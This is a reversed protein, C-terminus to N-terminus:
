TGSRADPRGGPTAPPKSSDPVVLCGLLATLMHQGQQRSETQAPQARSDGSAAFYASALLRVGTAPDVLLRLRARGLTDELIGALTAVIVQKRSAWQDAIGRDRLALLEIESCLLQLRRDGYPAAVVTDIMTVLSGVIPRDGEVLPMVANQLRVTLNRIERDVVALLLETKSAFNSYFAGRTFGADACLDAVSTEHLGQWAFRLLAADLLLQRTRERRRQPRLARPHPETGNVDAMPGETTTAAVRDGCRSQGFVM